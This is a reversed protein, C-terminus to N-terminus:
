DRWILKKVTSMITYCGIYMLIVNGLEVGLANGKSINNLLAWISIIGAMCLTFVICKLVNNKM